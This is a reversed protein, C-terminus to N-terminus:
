YLHLLSHPGTSERFLPHDPPDTVPLILRSAWPTGQYITQLTIVSNTNQRLPEGTNPNPDFRPANSSSIALRIRHGTHFVLATTGLDIEFEYITGPQMLTATEFGERYRARLLGDTILMSRGDPYVDTLKASWDTDVSSSSAFLQLQIKGVIELPIGLSPSTYVVIDSREELSRQDLPGAELNLNAGGLTPVPQSPNYEFTVLSIEAAASGGQLKGEPNLFLSSFTAPVPWTESERWLNSIETGSAVDGMLYYRVPPFSGIKNEERKLWFDFWDIANTIEELLVVSNEPYTLEGQTPTGAGTHTWPGIIVKQNGRAPPLSNEQLGKFHNLTGSLFIDYWGGLQYTPVNILSHRRVVSINQWFEDYSEHEIVKELVEPVSEVSELWGEVLSARYGGGSHAADFYLDSAASFIVACKLGPPLSGVALNALIGDASVGFIGVNSNCWAQQTIWEVTDFGDWNPASTDLGWGDDLFARSVGESEFRGRQDQVVVAYGEFALLNVIFSFTSKDYPTRILLCPLSETALPLYLDTSLRVGDRMPVEVTNGTVGFIESSKGHQEIQLQLSQSIQQIWEMHISSSLPVESSSNDAFLSSQFLLIFFIPLTVFTPIRIAGPFLASISIKM